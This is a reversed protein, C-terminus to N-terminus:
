LFRRQDDGPGFPRREVIEGNDTRKFRKERKKYDYVVVCAYDRMEFGDRYNRSLTSISLKIRDIKDKFNSMSARKEDETIALDSHSEALSKPTYKRSSM